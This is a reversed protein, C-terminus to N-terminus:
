KKVITKPKAMAKERFPVSWNNAEKDYVLREVGFTVSEGDMLSRDDMSRISDSEHMVEETKEEEIKKDDDDDDDCDDGQLM